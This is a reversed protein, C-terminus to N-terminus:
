GRLLLAEVIRQPAEESLVGAEFAGALTTSLFGYPLVAEVAGRDLMALLRAPDLSPNMSIRAPRITAGAFEHPLSDPGFDLFFMPTGAEIRAVNYAHWGIPRLKISRGPHDAPASLDDHEPAAGHAQLTGYM